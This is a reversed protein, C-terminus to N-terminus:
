LPLFREALGSLSPQLSKCLNYTKLGAFKLPHHGIAGVGFYQCETLERVRYFLGAVPQNGNLLNANELKLNVCHGLNIANFKVMLAFGM